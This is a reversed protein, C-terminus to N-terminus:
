PKAGTDSKGRLLADPYQELYDALSRISRAAASLDNLTQSLEYPIEAHNKVVGQVSSLTGDVRNLASRTAGATQALETSLDDIKHNVNSLLDRIQAVTTELGSAVRDIRRDTNGILKDMSILTSGIGGAIPGIRHDVNQFLTRLDKLALSLNKISETIEPQNVTREIGEISLTLKTILETIPIKKLTRTLEEWKAPITPIEPYPSGKEKFLAPESEHFDLEVMLQGTVVSQLQLQARMGRKIMEDIFGSLDKEPREGVWTVRDPEIEAIVPIRISMNDTDLRMQIQVVQGLQVGRFVVPAGTNLGSVSGDFFMVVEFGKSFLRGGGFIIIGAVALAIAGIVFAGIMTKNTQKSM